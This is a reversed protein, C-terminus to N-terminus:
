FALQTLYQSSKSVLENMSYPQSFTKLINSFRFRLKQAMIDNRMANLVDSIETIDNETIGIQSSPPFLRPTILCTNKCFPHDM